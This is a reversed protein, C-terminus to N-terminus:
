KKTPPALIAISEGAELNVIIEGNKVTAAVKTFKGTAQNYVVVIDGKAISKDSFTVTLHKSTTTASSGSKLEVGFEAVVTDKGLASPLDKKVTSSSGKTIAVQFSKKSAGKPVTIKVTGGSTKGKVTGGKSGVTKATVISSFGTPPGSPAPETGGYGPGASLAPAAMGLALAAACSSGLAMRAYPAGLKIPM